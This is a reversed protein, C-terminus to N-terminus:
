PSPSRYGPRTRLRAGSTRRDSDFPFPPGSRKGTRSGPDPPAAACSRYAASSFRRSVFSAVEEREELAQHSDGPHTPIVQVSPESHRTVISCTGSCPRNTLRVRLDRRQRRQRIPPSLRLDSTLPRLNPRATFLSCDVTFPPTRFCTAGALAAVGRRHCHFRLRRRIIRQRRIRLLM